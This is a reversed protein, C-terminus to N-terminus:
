CRGINFAKLFKLTPFLYLYSVFTTENPCKHTGHFSYIRNDNEEENGIECQNIELNSIDIDLSVVGKLRFCFILRTVLTLTRLHPGSLISKVFVRSNRLDIKDSTWGPLVPTYQSLMQTNTDKRRLVGTDDKKLIRSCYRSNSQSVITLYSATTSILRVLKAIITLEIRNKYLM